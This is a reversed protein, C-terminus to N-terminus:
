PEPEPRAAAHRLAAQIRPPMHVGEYSGGALGAAPPGPHQDACPPPRARSRPGRWPLQRDNSM